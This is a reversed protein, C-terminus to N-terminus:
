DDYDLPLPEPLELYDEHLMFYLADAETKDNLELIDTLSYTDLIGEIKRLSKDSANRFELNM